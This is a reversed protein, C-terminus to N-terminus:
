SLIVEPRFVDNSGHRILLGNLVDTMQENAQAPLSIDALQRLLVGSM